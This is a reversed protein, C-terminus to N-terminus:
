LKLHPRSLFDRVLFDRPLDLTQETVLTHKDDDRSIERIGQVMFDFSEETHSEATYQNFIEMGLVESDGKVITRAKLVGFREKIQIISKIKKYM